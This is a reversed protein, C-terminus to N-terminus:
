APAGLASPNRRLAYYRRCAVYCRDSVRHSLVFRNCLYRERGLACPPTARLYCPSAAAFVKTAGLMLCSACTPQTDERWGHTRLNLERGATREALRPRRYETDRNM